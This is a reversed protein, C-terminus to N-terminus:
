ATRQKALHRSLRARRIQWVAIGILIVIAPMLAINVWELRSSIGEIDARLAGQVDRQRLRNEILRQNYEAVAEQQARTLAGVPGIGDIAPTRLAELEAEVAAQEAQLQQQEARYREEAEAELEDIRTFPRFVLGRGRLDILQGGGVLNDLVNIVFDSNQTSLVGNANINLDDTLMDTDTVIIANLPAVSETILEPPEPPAEEGPGPEPLAPPGDPFATEVMGTLRGALVYAEPTAVFTALLADPPQRRLVTAQDLLMSNTTTTILPTLETTAGDLLRLAGASQIRMLSLQATVVDDGDINDQDVILWPLYDAIFVQNGAQSRVELAMDLDGVVSEVPM